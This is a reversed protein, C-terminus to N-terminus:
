ARPGPCNDNNEDRSAIDALRCDLGAEGAAAAFPECIWYGLVQALVGDVFLLPVREREWPPVGAEQFLKKLEHSHGRGVPACREGGARFRVTIRAGACRAASLGLGAAPVAVLIRGDSLALPADATWPLEAAPLPALPWLAHLDDRYRRVEAGPWAVHPEADPRAPLIEQEIRRLHVSDPLPLGQGRVWYRLLNRRRAPTLQGLAAVSLTGPRSGGSRALDAAALEELLEKAEALHAASRAMARSAAPWRQRLRPLLDHRLHNRDLSTDFNSEDDVWSLGQTQAYHRLADRPLDLLPRALWGAACRRLPPMAALGAVGAGRLLMLLLTEAQDDQHHATLLMEGEGLAQELAAYRASRAAAELGSGAATVQVRSVRCPVDLEKCVALCHESWLDANPSLGHHVHVAALNVGLANLAHLLVHSDLGGSYAVLYRGAPPLTQLFRRLHDTIDV